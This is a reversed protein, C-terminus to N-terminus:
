CLISECAKNCEMENQIPGKAFTLLPEQSIFMKM